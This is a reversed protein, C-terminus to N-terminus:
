GGASAEGMENLVARYEARFRRAVWKLDSSDAPTRLAQREARVVTRVTKVMELFWAEAEM